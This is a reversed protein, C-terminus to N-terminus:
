FYQVVELVLHVVAETPIHLQPPISLPRLTFVYCTQKTVAPPDFM